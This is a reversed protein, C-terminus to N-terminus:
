KDWAQHNVHNLVLAKAAMEGSLMAGNLSPNLLQDGANYIGEKVLSQEFPQENAPDLVQPLAKHIKYSQLFEWDQVAVGFSTALEDKINRIAEKQSSFKLGPQVSVQILEKQNSKFDPSLNSLVALNNVKAHESSNIAILNDKFPKHPAAFYFQETSNWVQEDQVQDSVQELPCAVIIQQAKLIEGDQLHVEGPKVAAVKANFKFQTRKLRSKMQKPIEEIGGKPILAQGEAFMKFTFEFIRASTKLDPELFIGTYFPRFFRTIIKSSFGLDELYQQTSINPGNFIDELSKKKLRAALNGVRIKDMFSGVPSFAMPLLASKNRTTDLVKFRQEGNFCLAGAKFAATNLAELNLYKQAMPYSSLLIQFGHDLKFGDHESTRVRGGARDQADIVLTNLNYEELHLAATLGAVGAGVILADYKTETM